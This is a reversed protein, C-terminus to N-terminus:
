REVYPGARRRSTGKVSPNPVPSSGVTTSMGPLASPGPSTPSAVRGVAARSHALVAAAQIPGAQRAPLVSWTVTGVGLAPRSRMCQHVHVTVQRRPKSKEVLKAPPIGFRGGVTRQGGFSPCGASVSFGARRERYCFTDLSLGQFAPMPLRRMLQIPNRGASPRVNLMLPRVCAPGSSPPTLRIVSLLSIGPVSRWWRPPAPTRDGSPPVFASPSTHMQIEAPLRRSPCNPNRANEGRIASCALTQAASPKTRTRHAPHVSPQERSALHRLMSARRSLSKSQLLARFRRSPM